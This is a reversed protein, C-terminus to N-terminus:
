VIIRSLCIRYIGRRRRRRASCGETSRLKKWFQLRTELKLLKEVYCKKLSHPQQGWAWGRVQLVLKDRKKQTMVKSRDPM